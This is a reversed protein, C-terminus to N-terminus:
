FMLEINMDNWLRVNLVLNSPKEFTNPLIEILSGPEMRPTISVAKRSVAFTEKVDDLVFLFPNGDKRAACSVTVVVETEQLIYDDFM